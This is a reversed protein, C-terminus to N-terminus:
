FGKKEILQACDGIEDGFFDLGSAQVASDVNM